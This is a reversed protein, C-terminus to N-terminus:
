GAVPSASMSEKDARRRPLVSLFLRATVNKVWRWHVALHVVVATILVVGSWTHILDWTVQSFLLGSATTGHGGPVFLFYIGSVACVAFSLAVVADLALNLRAARSMSVTGTTLGAVMRRAMMQIWRWHIAIHVAVAAVM